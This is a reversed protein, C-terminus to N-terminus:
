MLSQVSCAQIMGGNLDDYIYWRDNLRGMGWIHTMNRNFVMVTLRYSIGRIDIVEQLPRPTHFAPPKVTLVSPLAISEGDVTFSKSRVNCQKPERNTHSRRSSRVNHRITNSILQQCFYGKRLTRKICMYLELTREISLSPNQVPYHQRIYPNQRRHRVGFHTKPCPERDPQEMCKDVETYSVCFLDYLQQTLASGALEPRHSRNNATHHNYFLNEVHLIFESHLGRPAFKCHKARFADRTKKLEDPDNTDDARISKVCEFASTFATDVDDVPALDVNPEQHIFFLWMLFTDLHCSMADWPWLQIAMAHQDIRPGEVGTNIPTLQMMYKVIATHAMKAWDQTGDPFSIRIWFRNDTTDFDTARAYFSTIGGLTAKRRERDTKNLWIVPVIIHIPLVARLDGITYSGNRTFRRITTGSIICDSDDDQTDTDEPTCRNRKPQRPPQTCLTDAMGDVKRKSSASVDDKTLPGIGHQTRSEHLPTVEPTDTETEPEPEPEEPQSATDETNVNHLRNVNYKRKSMRGPKEGSLGKTIWRLKWHGSPGESTLIGTATWRQHQKSKKMM